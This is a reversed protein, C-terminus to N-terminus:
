KKLAQITASVAHNIPMDGKKWAAMLDDSSNTKTIQISTFGADSLMKELVDVREAGVVCQSVEPDDHVDKAVDGHIRVIDSIHLRGNNKLVRYAEKFVHEKEPSLNIVCNSIIVDVSADAVPLHEIEGLRFQVNSYKQKLANLRSKEIMEHTMDVGIVFGEEGVQRRALFADFGGGSGLDLVVDGQKLMALATPNGCGLGMNAGNPQKLLDEEAYGMTKSLQIVDQSDNSCCSAETSSTAIKGYRERVNKRQIDAKM